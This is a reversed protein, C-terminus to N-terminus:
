NSNQNMRSSYMTSALEKRFNSDQISLNSTRPLNSRLPFVRRPQAENDDNIIRLHNALNHQPLTAECIVPAYNVEFFISPEQRERVVNKLLKRISRERRLQQRKSLTNYPKRNLSLVNRMVGINLARM